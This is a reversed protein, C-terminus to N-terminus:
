GAVLLTVIHFPLANAIAVRAWNLSQPNSLNGPMADFHDGYQVSALSFSHGAFVSSSSLVTSKVKLYYSNM